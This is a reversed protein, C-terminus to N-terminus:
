EYDSSFGHLFDIFDLIQHSNIQNRHQLNHIYAFFLIQRFVRISMSLTRFVKKWKSNRHLFNGIARFINIQCWVNWSVDTCETQGCM